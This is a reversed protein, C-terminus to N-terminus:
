SVYVIDGLVAMHGMSEMVDDTTTVLSFSVVGPANMVATYKWAAFITQGPAALAFLLDHLSQEIAARVDPTDPQLDRIFVDITHKVPALVWFDKVAVPRVTDIYATDRQLDQETPWGDDDARLDDLLVRVTVTGMGMENPACWARTVGPVAKAWRVYDHAAGGQPPQRIRELVRIRLNDDSETETGGELLLVETSADVGFPPNIFNLNTGAPLNGASGPDLARVTVPTPASDYITVQELVEFEQESFLLRAGVPIVAGFRTATANVTGQALTAVKRGVTGDANVLWIDGHRDLWESEATDPMLMRSVWEIFRLVLHCLGAQTDSMVRLVNNGILIAGSL